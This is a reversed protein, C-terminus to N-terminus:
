DTLDWVESCARILEPRVINIKPSRTIRYLHRASCFSNTEDDWIDRVMNIGKRSWLRFMSRKKSGLPWRTTSQILPNLYLTQRLVQEHTRPRARRLGKTVATWASWIAKWLPSGLPTINPATCLWGETAGWNGDRRLELKAVRFRIFTKWPEPGPAMARPIMKALLAWTQAYPDFVKLGGNVTPIIATDWAVRAQIRKDPQDGWIFNRVLTRIRLLVGKSIDCCSAFYWISALV